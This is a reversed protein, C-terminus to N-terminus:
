EFLGSRKGYLTHVTRVVVLAGFYAILVSVGVRVGSSLLVYQLGGGMLYNLPSLIWRHVQVRWVDRFGRSRNARMHLAAFVSLSIAGDITATVIVIAARSPLRSHLAEVILATATTSLIDACVINANINWVRSAQYRETAQIWLRIPGIPM